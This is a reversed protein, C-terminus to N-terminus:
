VEIDVIKQIILFGIVLMIIATALMIWGCMTTWLTEMYETNIVSIVVAMIVPLATILYSSVRQMATLTQIEGKIRIRERIINGIKDLIEALNGGVEHQVNIATIMLDLDDSDIRRLLNQFAVENPIGLGIERVVRAFESGIPEALQKAMTDMSQLLSYGSRLSNALLMVADALQNNFAKLRKGQTIKVYVRPAFFGVIGLVLGIVPGGLILTGVLFLAATSLGSLGLFETVTMKIDARALDTALDAAFGRKTLVKDMDEAFQKGDRREPEESDELRGGYQDLRKDVEASNGSVLRAIGYFLVFVSIAALGGVLYLPNM